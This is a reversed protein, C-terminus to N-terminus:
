DGDDGQVKGRREDHGSVQSGEPGPDRELLPRLEDEGQLHIEIGEARYAARGILHAATPATVFLAFAALLVPAAAGDIAVAGSLAVLGFGLTSAKTAAHMRAYVDDLRVVGLGALAVLLAGTVAVVGVLLDIVESVDIM